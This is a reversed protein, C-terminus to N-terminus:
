KSEEDLLVMTLKSAQKTTATNSYQQPFVM